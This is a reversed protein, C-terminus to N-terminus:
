SRPGSWRPPPSPTLQTVVLIEIQPKDGGATDSGCGALMTAAACAMAAGAIIRKRTNKQAGSM